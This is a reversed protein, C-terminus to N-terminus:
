RLIITSYSVSAGCSGCCGLTCRPSRVIIGYGCILKVRVRRPLAIALIARARNSRFILRSNVVNRRSRLECPIRVEKTAGLHGIGLRIGCNRRSPRFRRSGRTSRIPFCINCYNRLSPRKGRCSLRDRYSTILNTILSYFVLLCVGADGVVKWSAM